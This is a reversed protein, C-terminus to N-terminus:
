LERLEEIAPKRLARLTVAGSAAVAGAVLAILALLYSWPVALSSPPPDFVGTLVKILLAAMVTALLGGLVLGGLTVFVSETWVFAGLHCPVRFIGSTVAATM